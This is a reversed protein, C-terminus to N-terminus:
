DENNDEFLSVSSSNQALVDLRQQSQTQATLVVAQDSNRKKKKDKCLEIWTPFEEPLKWRLGKMRLMRNQKNVIKQCRAKFDKTIRKEILKGGFNWGFILIWGFIMFQYGELFGLLFHFSVYSVAMLTLFYCCWVVVQKIIFDSHEHDIISLFQTVDGPSLQGDTLDSLYFDTYFRDSAKSFPFIITKTATSPPIPGSITSM